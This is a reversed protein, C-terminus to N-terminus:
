EGRRVAPAVKIVNNLQLSKVNWAKKAADDSHVDSKYRAFDM